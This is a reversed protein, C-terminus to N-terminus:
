SRSRQATSADAAGVVVIGEQEELFRAAIKLFTPSDDVLLVRIPNM